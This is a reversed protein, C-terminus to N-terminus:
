ITVGDIKYSYLGVQEVVRSADRFVVHLPNNLSTFTVVVASGSKIQFGVGQTVVLQYTSVNETLELVNLNADIRVDTVGATLRIVDAGNHAVVVAGSDAITFADGASDLYVKAKTRGVMPRAVCNEFDTVVWGEFCDQALLDYSYGLFGGDGYFKGWSNQVLWRRVTDDYGVILMAHNAGAPSTLSMRHTQWPGSAQYIDNRVQAGIIVPHGANLAAKIRYDRDLPMTDGHTRSFLKEYKKICYRKIPSSAAYLAEPPRTNVKSVDYPWYSEEPTGIMRLTELMARIEVGDGMNGSDVRANFYPFLRSYDGPRLQECASLVSNAVCSGISGQDEVEFVHPLLDLKSPFNGGTAAYIYDRTDKSSPIVKDTSPRFINTM